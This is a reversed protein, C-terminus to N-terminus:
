LSVGVKNTHGLFVAKFVKNTGDLKKDLSNYSNASKSTKPLSIYCLPKQSPSPTPPCPLMQKETSQVKRVPMGTVVEDAM